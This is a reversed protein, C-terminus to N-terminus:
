VLRQNNLPPMDDPSVVRGCSPCCFKEGYDAEGAFLMIQPPWTCKCLEYGFGKAISAQAIQLKEEVDNLQQTVDQKEKKPLIDIASKITSITSGLLSIGESFIKIDFM